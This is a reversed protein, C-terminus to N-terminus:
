PWSSIRASSSPPGSWASSTQRTRAGSIEAETITEIIGDRIGVNRVADFDTEPDMVRGNLIVVDYGESAPTGCAVTATIAILAIARPGSALSRMSAINRIVKM